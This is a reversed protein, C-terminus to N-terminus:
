NGGPRGSKGPIGPPRIGDVTPCGRAFCRAALRGQLRPGASRGYRCATQNITVLKEGKRGFLEAMAAELEPLDFGLFESAAGVMVTNVARASGAAKAIREADILVHNPYSSVQDLVQEVPPYDPINVFPVTSTVISGHEALYQVYRLAELPEVALVM